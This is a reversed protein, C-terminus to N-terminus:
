TKITAFATAQEPPMPSRRPANDLDRNAILKGESENVETSKLAWHIISVYTGIIAIVAAIVLIPGIGIM